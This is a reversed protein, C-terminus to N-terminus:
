ARQGARSAEYIMNWLRVGRQASKRRAIIQRRSAGIGKRKKTRGEVEDRKGLGAPQSGEDPRDQLAVPRM